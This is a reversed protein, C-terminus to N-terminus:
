EMFNETIVQMIEEKLYNKHADIPEKNDNIKTKKPTLFQTDTKKENGESDQTLNNKQLSHNGDRKIREDSWKTSHL